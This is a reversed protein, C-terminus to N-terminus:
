DLNAAIIVPFNESGDLSAYKLNPPLEKLELKTLPPDKKDNKEKAMLEEMYDGREKEIEGDESILKDVGDQYFVRENIEEELGDM